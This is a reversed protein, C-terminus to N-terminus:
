PAATATGARLRSGPRSAASRHAAVEAIENLARRAAERGIAILEDARHFEFLGIKSLRANILVDPPDGALRSRAIRDQTINFADLMAAAIGPAGDAGRGFQRRLQRAESAATEGADADGPAEVSPLSSDTILAGRYATDGVLNVAIVLEAGMARCLTVPVPNVLAGDFLWRNDIRLPEFIGPMAYSARIAQVLDGRRLWVEHGSGIETAM